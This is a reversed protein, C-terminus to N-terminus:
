RVAPNRQIARDLHVYGGDVHIFQGTIHSSRDSALFLAADAIEEPRTLRNGLPIRDEIIQLQRDLDDFSNHLWTEYLPTMVEAPIIANVRIGYPALEAAWERTLGLQAAKAAVYGSTNGQGTFATKSSINLIVGRSQKLAPLCQQAMFYYHHLNRVLSKIFDEPNGKELGVGDNIGANNILVDIRGAAALTERVTESCSSASDLERIILHAKLGVRTLDDFLTTGAERNKDVIVPIAGESAAKRVIAEGIGAAGGTIIMVKNAINLDM